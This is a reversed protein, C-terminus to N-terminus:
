KMKAKFVEELLQFGRERKEEIELNALVHKRVETVDILNPDNPDYKKQALKNLRDVEYAFAWANENFGMSHKIIDFYCELASIADTNTYGLKELEEIVHRIYPEDMMVKLEPNTLVEANVSQGDEELLMIIFEGKGPIFVNSVPNESDMDSIHAILDEPSCLKQM